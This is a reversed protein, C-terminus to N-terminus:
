EEIKHDKIKSCLTRESIGLEKAANKRNGKHRKLAGEILDKERQRLNFENAPDYNRIETSLSENTQTNILITIIKLM